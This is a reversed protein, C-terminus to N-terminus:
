PYVQRIIYQAGPHMIKVGNTDNNMYVNVNTNGQWHTIVITEYILPPLPPETVREIISPGLLLILLVLAIIICVIVKM